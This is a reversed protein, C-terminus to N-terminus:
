PAIRNLNLDTTAIREGNRDLEKFVEGATFGGVSFSVPVLGIAGFGSAFSRGFFDAPM